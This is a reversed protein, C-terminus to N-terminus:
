VHEVSCHIAHLGAHLEFFSAFMNACLWAPSLAIRAAHEENLVDFDLEFTAVHPCTQRAEFVLFWGNHDAPLGHLSDNGITVM